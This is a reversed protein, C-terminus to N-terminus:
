AGARACSAGHEEDVAERLAAADAANVCYPPETLAVAVRQAAARLGCRDAHPCSPAQAPSRDCRGCYPLAGMRLAERLECAAAYLGITAPESEILALAKYIRDIM